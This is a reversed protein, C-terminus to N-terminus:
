KVIANVSNSTCKAKKKGTLKARYTTSKKIRVKITAKGSKNTEINSDKSFKTKALLHKELTGKSSKFKKATLSLTCEGKSKCSAKLTCDSPTATPTVTPTNTPAVTPTPTASSPSNVKQLGTSTGSNLADFFLMQIQEGPNANFTLAWTDGLDSSEWVQQNTGVYLKGTSEDIALVTFALTGSSSPFTTSTAEWTGTGAAANKLRLIKGATAGSSNTAAYLVDSTANYAFKNVKIETDAAIVADTVASFVTGGNTSKYIGRTTSSAPNGGLGAYMVTSNLAIFSSVAQGVFTQSAITQSTTNYFYLGGNTGGDNTFSAIVTTPLFSPWQLASYSFSDSPKTLFNSSTLTLSTGSGTVDIAYIAGSGVICRNNDTPSIVVNRGGVCDNGPCTFKWTPPTGTLFDDTVSIGANSGLCVRKKNAANQGMSYATVGEVGNYLEAWVASAPVRVDATKALGRTTRKYLQKTDAPNFLCIGGRNDEEIRIQVGAGGSVIGLTTWNTGGDVSLNLGLNIISSDSNACGSTMSGSTGSTASFSTGNDTSLYINAGAGTVGVYITGTSTLLIKTPVAGAAINTTIDTWSGFTGDGNVSAKFLGAGSPRGGIAYALTSGIAMDSTSTVAADITSTQLITSDSPKVVMISSSNNTGGAYLVNNAGKIVGPQNTAATVSTWSPSWSTAGSSPLAASFLQNPSTTTLFAFGNSIAVYNGTGNTYSGGSASVWTTGGDLSSYAGNPSSIASLLVSGTADSAVDLFTGGYLGLSSRTSTQAQLFIPLTLLSVLISAFYKIKM